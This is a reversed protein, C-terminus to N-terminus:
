KAASKDRRGEGSVVRSERGSKRRLCESTTASGAVALVVCTSPASGRGLMMDGDNCSDETCGPNSSSGDTWDSESCGVGTLTLCGLLAVPGCFSM